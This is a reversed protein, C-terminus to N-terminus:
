TLHYSFETRKIIMIASAKDTMTANRITSYIKVNTAEIVAADYRGDLAIKEYSPDYSLM